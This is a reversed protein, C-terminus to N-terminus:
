HRRRKSKAKGSKRTMKKKPRARGGTDQRAKGKKRRPKVKAKKARRPPQTLKGRKTKASPSLPLSAYSPREEGGLEEEGPEDEEITEERDAGVEEEDEFRSFDNLDDDGFEPKEYPM